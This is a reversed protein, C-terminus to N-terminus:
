ISSETNEDKKQEPLKYFVTNEPYKAILETIAMPYLYLSLHIGPPLDEITLVTDADLRFKTDCDIINKQEQDDDVTGCFSICASNGFIDQTKVNFRLYPVHVDKKNEFKITKPFEGKTCGIRMKGIVYDTQKIALDRCIRKYTIGHKIYPSEVKIFPHVMKDFDFARNVADFLSISHYSTAGETCEITLCIPQSLQLDDTQM